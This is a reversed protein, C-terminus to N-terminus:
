HQDVYASTCTVERRIRTSNALPLGRTMLTDGRRFGRVMLSLEQMSLKRRQGNKRAYAPYVTPWLMRQDQFTNLMSKEVEMSLGQEVRCFPPIDLDESRCSSSVVDRTLAM